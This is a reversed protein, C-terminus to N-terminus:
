CGISPKTALHLNPAGVYDDYQFDDIQQARRKQLKTIARKRAKRVQAETRGRGKCATMLHAERAYSAELRKAVDALLSM